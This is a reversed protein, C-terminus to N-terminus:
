FEQPSITPQKPKFTISRVCALVATVIAELDQLVQTNTFRLVKWGLRTLIEDRKRDREKVTSALHSNGDVEINIKLITDAIDATYYHAPQTGGPAHTTYKGKTHTCIVVETGWGLRVALLQQPRTLKGRQYNLHAYGKERQTIQAKRKISPHYIPNAASQLYALRKAYPEPQRAAERAKAASQEMAARSHIWAYKRGCSQSCCRQNKNGHRAHFLIGCIVCATEMSRLAKGNCARSCYKGGRARGKFLTGCIMCQIDM